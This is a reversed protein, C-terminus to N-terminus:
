PLVRRQSPGWLPQMDGPLSLQTRTIVDSLERLASHMGRLLADFEVRLSATDAHELEEPDLRRLRVSIDEVLREPRSSGSAGPLSRLDSRLRDLQYVLSRPNAGDFLLLDAV